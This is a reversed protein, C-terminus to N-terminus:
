KVKRKASYGGTRCSRYLGFGEGNVAAQRRCWNLYGLGVVLIFVTGVSLWLAVLDIVLDTGSLAENLRAGTIAPSAAVIDDGGECLLPAIYSGTLGGSTL